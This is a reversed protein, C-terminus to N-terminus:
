PVCGEFAMPISLILQINIYSPACIKGPANLFTIGRSLTILTLTTALNFSM